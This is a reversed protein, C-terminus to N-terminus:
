CIVEFKIIGTKIFEFTNWGIQLTLNTNIPTLCHTDITSWINFILDCNIFYSRYDARDQEM